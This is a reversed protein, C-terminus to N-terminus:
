PLEYIEVLAAGSSIGDSSAVQATYAGPALMLILAADKGAHGLTFAGTARAALAVATADTAVASWNDNDGILQNDKYVRLRPDVLM